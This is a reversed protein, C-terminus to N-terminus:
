FSHENQPFEGLNIASIYNEIGTKIHHSGDIFAKVFKPKIDLNMGLLDQFVLVQGSTDAGAGIGITPISLTQTIEKALEAPVCELVLLFCGAQQLAIADEKLRLAAENSKGQVKYGGLTNISQPTLGLHGVVPIGSEVLHQIFKLNGAAGELKVAHAGAQMLTQAAVVNKSLSKRYSMFPLDTIIFKNPAGRAVATTHLSMMEVTAALTDKYGHMTMAVSDGVLITDVSTQSVIRASSYDYCTVMSIKENRNKKAAFSFVNM